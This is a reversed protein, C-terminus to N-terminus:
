EDDPPEPYQYSTGRRDFLASWRDKTQPPEAAKVEPEPAPRRLLSEWRTGIDIDQATKEAIQTKSLGGHRLLVGLLSIAVRDRRAPAVSDDNLV